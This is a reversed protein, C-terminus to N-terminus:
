YRRGPPWKLREQYRIRLKVSRKFDEASFEYGERKAIEVIVDLVAREFEEGDRENDLLHDLFAAVRGGRNMDDAM